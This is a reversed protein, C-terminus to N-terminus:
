IFSAGLAAVGAIALSIGLGVAFPRLGARVLSSSTVSTGLGFMAIAFLWNKAEAIAALAEAPIPFVSRALVALLFIRVFLPFVTALEPKDQSGYGVIAVVPALLLVRGLKVAVAIEVVKAIMGAAVVQGVEHTSGGIFLGTQEPSWGALLGVFPGVAIMATGLVVIVAIASAFEEAKRKPLVSEVASIAAAGCISCGVGIMMVHERSLGTRRSLAFTLGVGVVIVGLVTLWPVVGLGALADLSISFGLLAVGTRLVTKSAFTLGPKWRESVPRVNGVVMGAVIALLILVSVGTASKIGADLAYAVLAGVCSLALGPM